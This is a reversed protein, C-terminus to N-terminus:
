LSFSIGVIRENVGSGEDVHLLVRGVHSFVFVVDFNKKLTASGVFVELAEKIVIAPNQGESDHPLVVAIVTTILKVSEIVEERVIINFNFFDDLGVASLVGERHEQSLLLKSLGWNKGV